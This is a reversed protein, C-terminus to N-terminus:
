INIMEKIKILIKIDVNMHTIDLNKVFHVNEMEEKLSIHEKMQYPM